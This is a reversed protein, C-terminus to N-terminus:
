RGIGTATGARPGRLFTAEDFRDTGVTAAISPDAIGLIDPKDKYGPALAKLWHTDTCMLSLVKWSLGADYSVAVYVHGVTGIGRSKRVAPVGLMRTGGDVFTESPVGLLEVGDKLGLDQERFTEFQHQLFARYRQEGGIRLALVPHALKTLTEVDASMFARSYERVIQLARADGTEASAPLPVALAAAM